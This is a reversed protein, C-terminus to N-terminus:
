LIPIVLKSLNNEEDDSKAASKGEWHFVNESEKLRPTKDFEGQDEDKGLGEVAEDNGRNYDGEEESSNALDHLELGDAGKLNAPNGFTGALAPDDEKVGNERGGEERAENEDRSASRGSGEVREEGVVDNESRTGEVVKREGDRVEMEHLEFSQLLRKEERDLEDLDKVGKIIKEDRNM